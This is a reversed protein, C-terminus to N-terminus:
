NGYITGQRERLSNGQRGSYCSIIEALISLAIEEPNSAGTDLGAPAFIRHQNEESNINVPLTEFMKDSRNRPGLLGIYFAKTLLIKEFNKFDTKYDHAMLVVATHKDVVPQEESKHHLIKDAIAFLNKGAKNINTVVIVYWGLEKAIRILPYIDYNGGYIVLQMAPPIVETFVTIVEDGLNYINSQSAQKMLANKIDSVVFGAINKVPFNELFQEDNKYLLTTASFNNSDENRMITLLVSVQRSSSVSSLLHIPNQFDDPHLPTFLIDIIGNCGLGAGIERGDDNTTDYTYLSPKDQVMAKQARMLADGELCGGSVGGIYTGDDLVLMRAGARRYSSGEIRVVTVLAAKNINFDISQYAQLISNIEKM